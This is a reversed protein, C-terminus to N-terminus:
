LLTARGELARFLTVEDTYELDGGVPIGYALRSVRVGFPSLLRSIYMATADGETSPNTALIVEIEKPDTEACLGNVRSILEKIKIMEPTKGELPSIVGYLVHFVGKYEAIREIANVDRPNEVVCIINKNRKEDSCIHCIDSESINQCVSCKKTNNKAEIISNAFQMAKEEPMELVAFAMRYASKKGIGPLSRFSQALKEISPTYLTDAM